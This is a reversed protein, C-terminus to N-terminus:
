SLSKPEPQFRTRPCQNRLPPPAPPTRSRPGRQRSSRDGPSSINHLRPFSEIQIGELLRSCRRLVLLRSCTAPSVAPGLINSLVNYLLCVLVVHSSSDTM